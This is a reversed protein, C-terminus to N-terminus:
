EPFADALFTVMAGSEIMHMSRGDPMTIELTPVCHNPNKELYEDGYQKGEYLPVIEVDFDDDVVEHLMWKVRASRTTPYHYLKFKATEM